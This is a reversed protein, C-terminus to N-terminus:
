AKVKQLRSRPNIISNLTNGILVFATGTMAIMLGPILTWWWLGRQVAGANNADHLIRGWTPISPDGLGLFSLAAEALIAGPVAVAISAFAIPLLQPIIHRRIIKLDSEGMLRAAEVYQLNKIQLALSRAVKAMGVWGFIVFFGVFLFISRGVSVSLIILLPLAPLSYFVDNLRMMGEDSYRGRYGSIVGYVLGIFTSVIAVTLGIFLAVPAGWLIGISLDRGADDTGMLGFVQGALIVKADQVSDSSNSLYMTSTLTYTGKLVRCTHSDSFLMVQPKAADVPCSFQSTYSRLNSQISSDTSVVRITVTSGGTQPAPFASYFIRFVLGDPRAINVQLIPIKTYSATTTIVFGSPFTDYSNDIKWSYKITKIGQSSSEDKQADAATLILTKAASNGGFIAANSWDPPVTKPNDQWYVPNNWQNYTERPVEVAAYVSILVLVLLIVIGAVGSASRLLKSVIESRSLITQGQESM